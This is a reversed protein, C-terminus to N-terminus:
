NSIDESGVRFPDLAPSSQTVVCAPLADKLDQLQGEIIHTNILDLERLRQVDTLPSLDVIQPNDDLRLVELRSLEQLTSLDWVGTRTLELLELEPFATLVSLDDFQPGSLYVEVVDDFFDDGLVRRLGSRSTSAAVSPDGDYSVMGGLQLIERVAEHQQRARKLKLGFQAIVVGALLMLIVFTRLSFQFWRKHRRPRNRM